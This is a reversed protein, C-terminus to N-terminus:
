KQGFQPMALTGDEFIEGDGRFTYTMACNFSTKEDTITLDMQWDGEGIPMEWLREMAPDVSFDAHPYKLKPFSYKAQISGSLDANSDLLECSAAFTTVSVLLGLLVWRRRARKEVTALLMGMCTLGLGLPWILPPRAGARAPLSFPLASSGLQKVDFRIEYLLEIAADKVEATAEFDFGALQEPMGKEDLAWRYKRLTQDAPDRQFRGLAAFMLTLMDDQGLLEELNMEPCTGSASVVQLDNVVWDGELDAFGVTASFTMGADPALAVLRVMELGLTDHIPAIYLARGGTEDVLPGNDVSYFLRPGNQIKLFIPAAPVYSRAGAGVTKGPNTVRFPYVAQADTRALVRLANNVTQLQGTNIPSYHEFRPRSDKERVIVTEGINNGTAVAPPLVIATNGALPTSNLLYRGLQPILHGYKERTTARSFPFEGGNIASVFADQSFFCSQADDCIGLKVLQAHINRVDEDGQWLFPALQFGVRTGSDDDWLSAGGAQLHINQYDPEYLMAMNDAAMELWWREDQFKYALTMNYHNDQVMHALEHALNARTGASAITQVQELPVYINANSPQYYLVNGTVVVEIPTKATPETDKLALGNYKGLVDLTAAIIAKIQDDTLAGKSFYVLVTGATNKRCTYLLDWCDVLEGSLPNSSAPLTSPSRNSIFIADDGPHNQHSTTRPRIVVYRNPYRESVGPVIHPNVTLTGNEPVVSLVGVYTDDIIVALRDDPGDSPFTLEALGVGDGEGTTVVSYALSEIEYDEAISSTLNDNLAATIFQAQEGESVADDPVRIGVGHVNYQVNQGPTVMMPPLTARTEPNDRKAGSPEGPLPQFGAQAGTNSTPADAAATSILREFRDAIRDRSFLLATLCLCAMLALTGSGVLLITRKSHTKEPTPPVTQMRVLEAPTARKPPQSLVTGVEGVRLHVNGFLVEDGLNLRVMGEVKVGNVYTGNASGMDRVYVAGYEDWVMAHQRSVTRDKLVVDCQTARGILLKRHLIYDTGDASRLLFQGTM